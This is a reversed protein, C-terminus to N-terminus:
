ENRVWRDCVMIWHKMDGIDENIGKERQCEVSGNIPKIYQCTACVKINKWRLNKAPKLKM